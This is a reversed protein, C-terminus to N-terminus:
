SVTRLRPNAMVYLADVVLNIAVFSAVYLLTIGQILGYDRTGIANMMLEGLGPWAFLREIVVSGGLLYGAQLGIVTITPILANRLVHRIVIILERVGKARATRVYEQRLEEVVGMDEDPLRQDDEESDRKPDNPCVLEREWPFRPSGPAAPM